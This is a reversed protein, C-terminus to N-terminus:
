RVDNGQSKWSVLPAWISEEEKPFVVSSKASRIM